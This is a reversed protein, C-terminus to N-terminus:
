KELSLGLIRQTPKEFYSVSCADRKPPLISIQRVQLQDADISECRQVIEFGISTRGKLLFMHTAHSKMFPFIPHSISKGADVNADVM